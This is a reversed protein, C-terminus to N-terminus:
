DGVEAKTEFTIRARVPYGRPAKNLRANALYERAERRTRFWLRGFPRGDSFGVFSVRGQRPESYRFRVTWGDIVIRFTKAM